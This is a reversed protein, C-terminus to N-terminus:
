PAAPPPPTQKTGAYSNAGFLAALTGGIATLKMADDCRISSIFFALATMLLVVNHTKGFRLLWDKM